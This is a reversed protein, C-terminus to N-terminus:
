QENKLSKFHYSFMLVMVSNYQGGNIFPNAKGGFERVPLVSQIGRLTAKFHEDFRYSVGATASIDLTNFPLQLILEGTENEELSSVLYGASAGLSVDVKKNIHYSVTLPVELYNLRLLYQSPDGQDLKSPKRSGKQVYSIEFSLDFNKAIPTEVGAGFIVGAKDFGGLADGSVQSATIGGLVFANFNQAITFKVSVALIFTLIFLRKM